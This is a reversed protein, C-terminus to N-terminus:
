REKHRSGTAPLIDCLIADKTKSSRSLFCLQFQRGTISDEPDPQLEVRWSLMGQAIPIDGALRFESGAARNVAPSDQTFPRRVARM